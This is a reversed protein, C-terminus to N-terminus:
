TLPDPGDHPEVLFRRRDRAAVAFSVPTHGESEETADDVDSTVKTGWRAVALIPEASAYRSLSAALAAGVNFPACQTTLTLHAPEHAKMFTCSGARSGAWNDAEYGLRPLTGPRRPPRAGLSSDM